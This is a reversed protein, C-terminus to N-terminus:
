LGAFIQLPRWVRQSWAVENHPAGPEHWHWFDQDQQYGVGLLTAELQKNVCYNDSDNGDDEIGDQDADLCTGGGGSDIYLATPQHGLAAWLEIMTTNTVGSGMSGWGVTGSLSAVFAYDTPNQSAVYLSVLGGLSSGMVGITPPEGYHQAVLPRVVTELMTAYDDAQGGIAGGGLDDPVHTYEDMRDVTNDIAVVMMASPLSDDLKWGGFIANPDFLNQGDHAYLLHTPPEQPVWVRVFRPLLGAGAVEFHRELHAVSPTVLSLEGFPDYLYARAWPDPEFTVGDTLKYGSGAPVELWVWHFGQDAQMPTGTWGDHDGALLTLSPSTSVFLHGPTQSADLVPAPWGEQRSQSLLTGDLDARLADLLEDLTTPSGGQGGVGGQGGAGGQSGTGGQAGQGGVGGVGGAGQAGQGGQGAGTGAGGAGSPDSASEGCACLVVLTSALVFLRTRM